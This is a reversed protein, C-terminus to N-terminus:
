INETFFDICWWQIAVTPFIKYYTPLLGRYLGKFGEKKIIKMSCDIIGNYTPVSSHFGQIQLRRRVLDTPYSVSVASIGTLGGCILRQVNTNLQFDNSLEKYTHYFHFFLSSYLSYGMLSCNLGLYYERFSLKNLANCLGRYHSHNTQLMIRSRITELPYTILMALGGAVGGSVLHNFGRKKLFNYTFGNIGNQPFVRMCNIANGKWLYRIGEKKLVARLTSNPIFHNQRQIKYLDLPAVCSRAIMGSTGGIFFEKSTM